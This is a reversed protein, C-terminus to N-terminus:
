TLLSTICIHRMKCFGKYIQINKVTRAQIIEKIDTGSQKM